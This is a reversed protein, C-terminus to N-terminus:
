VEAGPARHPEFVTQESREAQKVLKVAEEYLAQQSRHLKRRGPKVTKYTGDATL